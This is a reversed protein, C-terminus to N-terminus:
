CKVQKEIWSYLKTMEEKLNQTPAYGLKEKIMTNDSNRGRVGQPKTLDHEIAASGTILATKSM